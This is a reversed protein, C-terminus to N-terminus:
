GTQVEASDQSSLARSRSAEILRQHVADSVPHAQHGYGRAQLCARLADVFGVPWGHQKLVDPFVAWRKMNGALEEVHARAALHEAIPDFAIRMLESNRSDAELLRSDLLTRIRLEPGEPARERLAALVEMRTVWRPTLREGLERLAIAALDLRLSDLLVANGRVSPALLREVYSDILEARSQIRAAMTDGGHGIEESWMAAFLPTTPQDRLLRILQACAEHIDAEEPRLAGSQEAIAGVYCDIFSYLAESPIALTEMVTGMSGREADRSTVVLRMIPFDPRSPDFARRTTEDRESLGDVIV